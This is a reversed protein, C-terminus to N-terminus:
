TILTSTLLRWLPVRTFYQIYKVTSIIEASKQTQTYKMPTNAVLMSQKKVWRWDNRENTIIFYCCYSHDYSGYTWLTHGHPWPSYINQPINYLETVTTVVNNLSDLWVNQVLAFHADYQIWWLRSHVTSCWVAINPGAGFATIYFASPLKPVNYSDIQPFGASDMPVMM